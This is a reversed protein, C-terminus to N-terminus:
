FLGTWCARQHFRPQKRRWLTQALTLRKRFIAVQGATGFVFNLRVRDCFTAITVADPQAGWNRQCVNQTRSGIEDRHSLTGDLLEARVDYLLGGAGAFPVSHLPPQFGGRGAGVDFDSEYLFNALVIKARPADAHLVIVALHRLVSLFTL